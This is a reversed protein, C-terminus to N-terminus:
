WRHMRPDAQILWKSVNSMASIWVEVDDPERLYALAQSTSDVQDNYTCGPFSTLEHIYDELWPAKVPLFVRGNEFADSQAHLRMLKDMGPLPKYAIVNLRTNQQLDQILSSGSAKDEIVVAAAEHYRAHDEVIYRLEPYEMKRRLVHLLYYHKGVVAWTTCVSFDHLDGAKIATDWSQIKRRVAPLDTPEYTKLWDTKIVAGGPPVPAQQYQGSFNYTGMQRRARELIELSEREPHLATGVDRRLVRTGFITQFAVEEFAEAIAPFSLVDWDDQAILYGTLDDLHLRQMVVIICGSAKDNLRSLLTNEYWDNASKRKADSFADDPKMPDDIVILDAGRGTLVGNVSTAMRTGLETTEFDHVAQRDSLRTKFVNQYWSTLMLRRSDRAFKDSLEQGYSACIVHRQPHHGLYWATFAVSVMHSKLGRPPLNIILRKIEGRECAELKAALLELHAAPQFPRQPHLEYYARESFTMFDSRLIAHYENPAILM